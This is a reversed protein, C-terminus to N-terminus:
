AILFFNIHNFLYFNVSFFDPDPDDDTSVWRISPPLKSQNNSQAKAKEFRSSADNKRISKQKILVGKTNFTVNEQSKEKLMRSEIQYDTQLYDSNSSTSNYGKFGNEEIKDPSQFDEFNKDEFDEEKEDNNSNTRYVGLLIIWM